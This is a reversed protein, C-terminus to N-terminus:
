CRYTGARCRNRGGLVVLRRDVSVHDPAGAVQTHGIVHLAQLGLDFLRHGSGVELIGAENGIHDAVHPIFDDIGVAGRIFERLAAADRGRGARRFDGADLHVDLRASVAFLRLGLEM